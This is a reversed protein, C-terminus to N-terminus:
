RTLDFHFRDTRRNVAHILLKGAVGDFDGDGGVVNLRNDRRQLDGRVRIHGNGGIEGNLRVVARCVLKEARMKFECRGRDAGVRNSRNHRELLKDRFRFVNGNQSQSTSKSLVSFHHDFSASAPIALVAVGLLSLVVTITFKRM